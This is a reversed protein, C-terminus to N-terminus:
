GGPPKKGFGRIQNPRMKSIKRFLRMASSKDSGGTRRSFSIVNSEIRRFLEKQEQENLRLWDVFRPLYQPPPASQGTEISSIVAPEYGLADAQDGITM